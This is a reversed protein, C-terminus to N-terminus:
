NDVVKKYKGLLENMHIMLLEDVIVNIPMKLEKSYRLLQDRTTRRVKIQVQNM